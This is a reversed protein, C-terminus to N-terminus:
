NLPSLVFSFTSKETCFSTLRSYGSASLKMDPEEQKFKAKPTYPPIYPKKGPAVVITDSAQSSPTPLPEYQGPYPSPPKEPAESLEARKFSEPDKLFKQFTLYFPSDLNRREIGDTPLPQYLQYVNCREVHTKIFLLITNFSAKIGEIM